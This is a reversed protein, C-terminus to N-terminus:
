DLNPSTRQCRWCIEFSPENKEGCGSCFWNDKTNNEIASIIALANDVFKDDVWIEPWTDVPSIEGAASSAFQNKLQTVIGELELLHKINEVVM